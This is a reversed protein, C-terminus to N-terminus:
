ASLRRCKRRWTRISVTSEKSPRSSSMTTIESTRLLSRPRIPNRRTGLRSLTAMERARWKTTQTPSAAVRRAPSSVM